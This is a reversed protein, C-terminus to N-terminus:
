CWAPSRIVARTLVPRDCTPPARGVACNLWLPFPGSTEGLPLEGALLRALCQLRGGQDVLGIKPRHSPFLGPVPVAPPVEERRRGLSHSPDEDIPGPVLLAALGPASAAPEVEVGDLRGPLLA